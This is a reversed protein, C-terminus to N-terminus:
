ATPETTARYEEPITAILMNEHRRLALKKNGAMAGQRTNLRKRAVGNSVTKPLGSKDSIPEMAGFGIYNGCETVFVQISFNSSGWM